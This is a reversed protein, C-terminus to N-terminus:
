QTGNRVMGVYLAAVEEITGAISSNNDIGHAVEILSKKATPKRRFM